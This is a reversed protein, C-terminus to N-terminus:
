TLSHTNWSTQNTPLPISSTNSPESTLAFGRFVHGRVSENAPTYPYDDTNEYPRKRKYDCFHVDKEKESVDVISELSKNRFRLIGNKLSRSPTIEAINALQNM